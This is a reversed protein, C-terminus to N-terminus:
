PSECPINPIKVIRNKIIETQMTNSASPDSFNVYGELRESASICREAPNHDHGKPFKGSYGNITPIGLDQALIMGDVEPLEYGPKSVDKAIFLISDPPLPSPLQAGLARLREHWQEIPTRSNQFFVTESCLLFATFTVLLLQQRYNKNNIFSYLNECGLAVIIAVPFAM